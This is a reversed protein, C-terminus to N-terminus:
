IWKFGKAMVTLLGGALAVYLLVAWVTMSNLKDKLGDLKGGFSDIKDNTRRLEVRLDTTVEKIHEVDSEIRAVREGLQDSMNVDESEDPQHQPEDKRIASSKM